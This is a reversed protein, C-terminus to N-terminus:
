SCPPPLKGGIKFFALDPSTGRPDAETRLHDTSTGGAESGRLTSGLLRSEPKLYPWLNSSSALLSWYTSSEQKIGQKTTSAQDRYRKALNAGATFFSFPAGSAGDPAAGRGVFPPPQLACAERAPDDEHPRTSSAPALEAGM